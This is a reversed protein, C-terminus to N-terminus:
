GGPQKSGPCGATGGDLVCRPPRPRCRTGPGPSGARQPLSPPMPSGQQIAGPGAPRTGQCGSVANHSHISNVAAREANGDYLALGAWRSKRAHFTPTQQSRRDLGQCPTHSSCCMNMRACLVCAGVTHPLWKVLADQRGTCEANPVTGYDTIAAEVKTEPAGPSPPSHQPEAAIGNAQPSPVRRLPTTVPRSECSGQLRPPQGPLAASGRACRATLHLCRSRAGGALAPQGASSAAQRGAASSHQGMRSCPRSTLPRVRQQPHLLCPVMLPSWPAPGLTLSSRTGSGGGDGGSGALGAGAIATSHTPIAIGANNGMLAAAEAPCACVGLGRRCYRLTTWGTGASVAAPARQRTPKGWGEIGRRERGGVRSGQLALVPHSVKIVWVYPLVVIALRPLVATATRSHSYPQAQM